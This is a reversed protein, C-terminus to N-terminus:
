QMAQQAMAVSGHSRTQYSKGYVRDQNLDKRFQAAAFLCGIEM